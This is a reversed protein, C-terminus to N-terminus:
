KHSSSLISHIWRFLNDLNYDGEHRRNWPLAFDVDKGENMLKTALNVPIPFATDRDSAGHRIYWHVAVTSKPDSIYNMPNMLQVRRRVEESLDKGTFHAPNGEADGFVSCEPSDLNDFAPCSKLAQRSVVFALYRDMDVDSAVDSKIAKARIFRPGGPRHGPTHPFSMYFSFGLSDDIAGGEQVFRSASALLWSKLYEMYNDSTLREDTKPHRLALTNIYQDFQRVLADSVEGDGRLGHYLWEYAADAHDLDTIPCYCVSAFVDDRAQAAGMAKLYPEYDPHNATAGLLASMAGGASTGDTIIRDASGAMRKDNFRLYRVAAKLDLLGRPAKGTYVGDQVSNNGRSGPICVCLGEALARGTADTASPNRASAAMYGGVYTRLLIASKQTAGEPVFFNLSQYQEDEINTVYPIDTYAIYRVESGDLMTLTKQEGQSDFTLGKEKACSLLALHCNMLLMILILPRKM